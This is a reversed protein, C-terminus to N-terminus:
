GVLAAFTALDPVELDATAAAKPTAGGAAERRRNVWVTALGLRQATVIDHYLSQAVHLIRRRPGFRRIAAEFHGAAPKYSRVQQATIVADLRAGLSPATLAFLDDDINSLVGLQYREALHGLAARTDPFVPWAALSAALADREGTTPVFGFRDGFSEVVRALVERYSRFTGAQAAPEFQAYLALLAERELEVGRAALLDGLALALGTEWDVLTGYCDFTLVEFSALDLSSADAVAL